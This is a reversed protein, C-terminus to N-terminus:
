RRHVIRTYHTVSYQHTRLPAFRPSTYTALVFREDACEFSNDLPQTIYPVHPGFSFATIVDLLNM